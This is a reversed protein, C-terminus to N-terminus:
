NSLFANLISSLSECSAYMAACIVGVLAAGMRIVNLQSFSYSMPYMRTIWLMM